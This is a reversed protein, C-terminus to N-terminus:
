FNAHVINAYGAALSLDLLRIRTSLHSPKFTPYQQQQQQQQQQQFNKTPPPSSRRSKV